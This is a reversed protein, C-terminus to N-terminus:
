EDLERGFQRNPAAAYGLAEWFEPGDESDSRVIVNVKRCGLARLRGELQRVLRTALGTRRHARATAVHYLWGRRGDWAGMASAVIELGRVAVLFTGPNRQTFVRLGADDDGTSRFGVAAWLARLGDGDGSRYERITIPLPASVSPSPVPPSGAPQKPRAAIRGALDSVPPPGHRAATTADRAASLTAFPGRVLPLGLDNVQEADVVM